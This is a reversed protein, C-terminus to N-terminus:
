IQMWTLCIHKHLEFFALGHFSLPSVPARDDHVSGHPQSLRLRAAVLCAAQGGADQQPSGQGAEEM